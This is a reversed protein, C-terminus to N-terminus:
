FLLQAVKLMAKEFSVWFTEIKTQLQAIKTFSSGLGALSNEVFFIISDNALSPTLAFIIEKSQYHSVLIKLKEISHNELTELVYYM